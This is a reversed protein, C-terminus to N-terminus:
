HYRWTLRGYLAAGVGCLMLAWFLTWLSRSLFASEVVLLLGATLPLVFILSNHRSFLYALWTFLTALLIIVVWGSFSVELLNGAMGVIDSFMMPEPAATSAAAADAAASNAADQTQPDAM